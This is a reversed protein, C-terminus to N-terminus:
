PVLNYRWWRAAEEADELTEAKGYCWEKWVVLFTRKNNRLVKTSELATVTDGGKPELDESLMRWRDLSRPIDNISSRWQKYGMWSSRQNGLLPITDQGDFWISYSVGICEVIKLVPYKISRKAMVRLLLLLSCWKDKWHIRL